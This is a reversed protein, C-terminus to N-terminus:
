EFLKIIQKAIKIAEEMATIVFKLERIKTKEYLLKVGDLTKEAWGLYKKATWYSASHVVYQAGTRTQYDLAAAWKQIQNEARTVMNLCIVKTEPTFYDNAKEKEGSWYNIGDEAANIGQMIVPSDEPADIDQAQIGVSGLLMVAMTLMYLKSRLNAM